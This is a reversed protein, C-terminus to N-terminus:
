TFLRFLTKLSGVSKPIPTNRLLHHSMSRDLVARSRELLTNSFDKKM